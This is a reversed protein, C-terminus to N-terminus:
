TCRDHNSPHVPETSTVSESDLQSWGFSICSSSARQSFLNLITLLQHVAAQGFGTIEVTLFLSITNSPVSSRLSGLSIQFKSRWRDKIRHNPERAFDFPSVSPSKQLATQCGAPRPRASRRIRPIM